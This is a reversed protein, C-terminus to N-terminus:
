ARSLRRFEETWGLAVIIQHSVPFDQDEDRIMLFRNGDPTVDFNSSTAGPSGCSTSMGHSYRGTWLERPRGSVATTGVDIPVSMMKEGSRYFLEGGDRKWVPDTGGDSSVQIKAGPGPFAQVYVQPKGSEASCYALWRGDPSFKPSGQAYGATDLPRPTRDGTLSVVTIQPPSGPEDVTYALGLGDPSYSEASRSTGTADLERASESRDAPMQWLRFRGMVGSRYGINRGDHSWVPRHSQGNNTLNSLVGSVFDYIYIDHSSGELEIALRRGDPSIRPHVYSGSPLPVPEPNGNRDVWVLTRSGGEVGGPIYALDGSASLDFNAVGTNRSMLVGELVQFPRGRVELRKPDFSVAHLKGDRAYVLYGSSYRAHTGREVLIKREGTRMTAAVIQAEDFSDADETAITLLVADGGPLASPYKFVREGNAVDIKLAQRPEGGTAAVSSLGGPTEPVFYITNGDAWTGGAYSAANCVTTTGGGSLNMTRLTTSPKLVFLGCSEGDPSYFASAGSTVQELRRSELDRLERIYLNPPGEAAVTNFLVSSGDPAIAVRDNLSIRHFQGEPMPIAFRTLSRPVAEQWRSISFTGIAAAGVVTGGVVALATRRTVGPKEPVPEIFRTETPLNELDLRAEGIDRLRRKPDKDLVRRLLHRVHPPTAKPLGEWPPERELTASIRDSGTEGAFAREGALMEFLVCGFAWIDTRKDVAFGRAQEPSMYGPTGLVAGACTAERIATASFDSGATEPSASKGLGFDLVKVSGDPAIKVNAPKLDRHIIGREHAAELARSRGRSAWRM